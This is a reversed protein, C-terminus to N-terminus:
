PIYFQEGKKIILREKFLAGLCKKVASARAKTKVVLGRQPLGGSALLEKIIMGRLQRRSGRFPAQTKYHRSKRSPNPYADKLHAGYDMLAYYWRRPNHIDLTQQLSPLIEADSVKRRGNFFHHIFVSRINTEIFVAPENFAFACIAGSTAEGVGPLQRLLERQRPVAAGYRSVLIEATRKLYLARRNYGLGQWAGLVGRLPASALARVTPFVSIFRSYKELVRKTQTQQLMFESVLIRYPDRTKRWPFVRSHTRYYAYVKKRFAHMQPNALQKM